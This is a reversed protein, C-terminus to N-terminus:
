RPHPPGPRMRPGPTWKAMKACIMASAAPAGADAPWADIKDNQRPEKVISIFTVFGGYCRQAENVWMCDREVGRENLRGDLKNMCGRGGASKTDEKGGGEM